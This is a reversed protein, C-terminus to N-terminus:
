SAERAKGRGAGSSTAEEIVGLVEKLRADLEAESLAAIADAKKSEADRGLLEMELKVADVMMKTGQPWYVSASGLTLRHIEGGSVEFEDGLSIELLQKARLKGLNVLELTDVIEYVEKDRMEEHKRARVDKADEILDKFDWVAVKYRQITSDMEPHGLEKAIKQCSKRQAFGQEIQDIFPALSAFVREKTHGM